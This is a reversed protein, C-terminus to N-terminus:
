VSSNDLVKKANFRKKARYFKQINGSFLVLQVAMREGFVWIKKNTIYFPCELNQDLWITFDNTWIIEDEIKIEYTKFDASLMLDFGKETLRLGGQNKKRPNIWFVPLYKRINQDTTDKGLHTLLLKTLEFKQNM